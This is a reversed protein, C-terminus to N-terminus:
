PHKLLMTIELRAAGLVPFARRFDDGHHKRAGKLLRINGAVESPAYGLPRLCRNKTGANPPEFGGAGAM